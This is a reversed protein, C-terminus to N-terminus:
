PSDGLEPRGDGPDGARGNLERQYRVVADVSTESPLEVLKRWAKRSKSNDYHLLREGVVQLWGCLRIYDQFYKSGEPEHHWSENEAERVAELLEHGLESLFRRYPKM